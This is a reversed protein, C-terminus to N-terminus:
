TARPLPKLGIMDDGHIRCRLDEDFIDAHLGTSAELLVKGIAHLTSSWWVKPGVKGTLSRADLSFKVELKQLQIWGGRM